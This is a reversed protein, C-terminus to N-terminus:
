QNKNKLQEILASLIKKADGIVAYDAADFIPADKDRNIAVICEANKVGIMHQLAGSIGCAIYLKPRVVKGTQGILRSQDAFGEDVAARSAGVAADLLQALERVLGFGERDGVGRGGAVIIDAETLSKERDDRNILQQIIKVGESSDFDATEFIVELEKPEKVAPMGFAGPCITGMQPRSDPCLITAMIGGPAPMNWYVLGSEADAKIEVCNATIGTSLRRALRPAFDKGNKNSSIMVVDPKYKSVIRYLTNTYAHCSYEMLRADDVCIVSDIEYRSLLAINEQMGHGLIVACIKGSTINSLQKAATILELSNSKIAGKETEIVVFIDRGNKTM